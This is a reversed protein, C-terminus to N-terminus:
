FHAVYRHLWAAVLFFLLWSSRAWIISLNTFNVPNVKDVLTIRKLQGGCSSIFVFFNEEYPQFDFDITIESLKRFKALMPHLFINRTYVDTLDPVINSLHNLKVDTLHTDYLETFNMKLNGEALRSLFIINDVVSRRTSFFHICSSFMTVFIFCFNIVSKWFM